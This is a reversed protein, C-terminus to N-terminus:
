RELHYKVWDTAGGTVKDYLGRAVANDEKTFWYVRQWGNEQALAGVAEILAKGVGKGRVAPDVFLDELYCIETKMWTNLHLVYNCIGIVTSGDVAVLGRMPVEPALLRRWTEGTVEPAVDAGYFTLYGDWLGRWAAEDTAALDRIVVTM